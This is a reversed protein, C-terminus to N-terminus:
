DRDNTYAKQEADSVRDWLGKRKRHEMWDSKYIALYLLDRYAGEVYQHAVLRGEVKCLTGLASSFQDLNLDIVEGYLKRLPFAEFVYTLFLESAELAISGTGITPLLITAIRAHGNRWDLGYLVHSGMARGKNDEAILIVQVGDWLSQAFRDPGPAQGQLRYRTTRTGTTEIKYLFDYDSRAVHRLRVRKGEAVVLPPPEQSVM